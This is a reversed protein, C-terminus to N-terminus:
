PFTLGDAFVTRKDFHGDGRTDELMAIIGAPPKGEGPGTPYGRDEAVFMRGREDFAMAVPDAITPEAAVLEVRLGPELRFSALAQEASLPGDLPARPTDGISLCTIMLFVLSLTASRRDYKPPKM